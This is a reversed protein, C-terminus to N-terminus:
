EYGKVYDEFEKDTLNMRFDRKIELFRELDNLFQYLVARNEFEERTKPLPAERFHERLADLKGLLEVSSLQGKMCVGVLQTFAAVENTADYCMFVRAFHQRMSLLVDFQKERMAFYREYVTVKALLHNNTHKYAKQKGLQIQTGITEYLVQEEMPVCRDQLANAMDQFLQYMDREICKRIEYLESEISPMYLNLVLAVGAGILVLLVENWLIGVHIAGEGLLHTVLVSAPVIGEAVQLKVTLPIFILLYMGFVIPTYGLFIFLVSALALAILTAVFRKIAVEVSQRKTSQISLITIIGASAAYKVGLAQALIIALTAGIATKLVRIGIINRM